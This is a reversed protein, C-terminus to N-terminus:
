YIKCARTIRTRRPPTSLDIMHTHSTTLITTTMSPALIPATPSPVTTRSHTAQISQTTSTTGHRKSHSTSEM